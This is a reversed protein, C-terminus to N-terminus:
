PCRHHTTSWDIPFSKRSRYYSVLGDAIEVFYSEDDEVVYINVGIRRELADRFRYRGTNLDSCVYVSDVTFKQALVIRAVLREVWAYKRFRNYGRPIVLEIIRVKIDNRFRPLILDLTRFFKEKKKRDFKRTHIRTVDVARLVEEYFLKAVHKRRFIVVCIYLIKEGFDFSTDISVSM